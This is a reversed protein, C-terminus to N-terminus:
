QVTIHWGWFGERSRSGLIAHSEPSWQKMDMGPVPEDDKPPVM